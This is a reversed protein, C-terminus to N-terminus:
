KDGKSLNPKTAYRLPIESSPNTSCLYASPLAVHEKLLTRLKEACFSFTWYVKVGADSGM